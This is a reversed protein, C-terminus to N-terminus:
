KPIHCIHYEMCSLTSPSNHLLPYPSLYSPTHSNLHLHTDQPPNNFDEEKYLSFICYLPPVYTATIKAPITNEIIRYIVIIMGISNISNASFIILYGGGAVKIQCTHAEYAIIYNTSCSCWLFLILLYHM